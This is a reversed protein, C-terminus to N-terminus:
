PWYFWKNIYNSLHKVLQSKLLLKLIAIHCYYHNRLNLSVNLKHLSDVIVKSVFTPSPDECRWIEELFKDREGQRDSFFFFFQM